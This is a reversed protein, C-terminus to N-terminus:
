RTRGLGKLADALGARAIADEPNLRLASEFHVQASALDSTGLFIFGLNGHAKANQPDLRLTTEFETRAEVLKNQHRFLLGLNYHAPAYDPRAAIAARLHQEAEVARNEDMLTLGLGAHAEADAPNKRLAHEDAEMSKRNKYAALADALLEYDKGNAPLLQLWLEAMEDRSQSGYSVPQPPHNPNRVNNTSNDYTFRMSLTTGKPLFVPQAYRYDGQWNFDWQKIWLLWKRTGDPLTAWGQMDRALYHAHPLVALAQLAVPLTFNEQVVYNSEGAPIDLVFSTLVVKFCTNTPRQDTFYLGVSSQLQEPKGAPNLHMQLLLDNGPDLQWALGDPLFAPLRGPQWGLFHGGPVEARVDMGGFGPGPDAADQRRSQMTRDLKIFAHHVIKPNGPRFEVGRVYRRAPVPVPVIFNRYVDRGEAALAYPETMNVVLDPPGLQWDGSPTPPAPLDSAAGEVAGEAVWQQIMGIQEVSLRREGVFEGHGPEPLWPPMYRRGTADAIDTAHKRVDHYNLLSFPAAQGPRHCGACNKFVIPAIDKTFTLQGRPRPSYVQPATAKHGRWWLTGALLAGGCVAAAVLAVLPFRRPTQSRAGGPKKPRSKKKM